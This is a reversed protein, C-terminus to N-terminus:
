EMARALWAKAMRWDMEVTRPSIELAAATEEVSFGAFFRLEVIAAQREDLEALRMLAEDLALLDIRGLTGSDPFDGALSEVKQGGGRKAANRARAHDILVHRMTKAALRFFHARDNVTLTAHDVLKLYAEHVLATPQLTASASGPRFYSAALRRLEDYIIPLLLSAAHGDGSRSDQILRTTHELRM